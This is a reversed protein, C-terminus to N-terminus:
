MSVQLALINVFILLALLVTTVLKASPHLQPQQVRLALMVLQVTLGPVLLLTPIVFKVLRALYNIVSLRVRPICMVLLRQTTLPHLLKVMSPIQPTLLQCLAILLHNVVLAPDQQDQLASIGMHVRLLVTTALQALQACVVMLIPAQPVLDRMGPRQDATRAQHATLLLKPAKM